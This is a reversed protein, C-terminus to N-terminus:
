PSLCLSLSGVAVLFVASCSAKGLPHVCGGSLLHVWVEHQGVPLPSPTSHPAGRLYLVSGRVAPIPLALLGHLYRPQSSWPTPWDQICSTRRQPVRLPLVLSDNTFSALPQWEGLGNIFYLGEARHLVVVPPRLKAQWRQLQSWCMAPSGLSERCCGAAGEYPLATGGCM